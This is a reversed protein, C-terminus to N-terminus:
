YTGTSENGKKKELYLELNDGDRYTRYVTYRIGELDVIEEGMWDFYFVIVRKEPNLGNRGGEFWESMGISSVSCYVKRKVEKERKVGYDDQEYFVKVLECTRSLRM